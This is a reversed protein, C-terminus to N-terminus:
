KQDEDGDGGGEFKIESLGYFSVSLSGDFDNPKM